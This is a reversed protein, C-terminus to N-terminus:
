ADLSFLILSPRGLARTARLSLTTAMAFVHVCPPDATREMAHNPGQATMWRSDVDPIDATVMERDSADAVTADLRSADQAVSHLGM